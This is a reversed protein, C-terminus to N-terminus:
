TRKKKKEKSTLMSWTNDVGLEELEKREEETVNEDENEDQSMFNVKFNNLEVYNTSEENIYIAQDHISLFLSILNRM